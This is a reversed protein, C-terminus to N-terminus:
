SEDDADSAPLPVQCPCGDCVLDDNLCCQFRRDVDLLYCGTCPGAGWGADNTCGENCCKEDEPNLVERPNLEFKFKIIGSVKYSMTVDPLRIALEEYGDYEILLEHIDIPDMLPHNIEKMRATYNLIAVPERQNFLEKRFTEFLNMERIKDRIDDMVDEYTLRRWKAGEEKASNLIMMQSNSFMKGSTFLTM